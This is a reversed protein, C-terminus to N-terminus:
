LYRHLKKILRMQKLRIQVYLVGPVEELAQALGYNSPIHPKLVDLDFEIRGM